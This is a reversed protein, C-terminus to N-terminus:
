WDCIDLESDSLSRLLFIGEKRFEGVGGGVEGERDSYESADDSM